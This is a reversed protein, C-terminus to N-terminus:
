LSKIVPATASSHKGEIPHLFSEGLMYCINKGFNKVLYYTVSQSRTTLFRAQIKKNSDKNQLKKIVSACAITVANSLNTELGNLVLM